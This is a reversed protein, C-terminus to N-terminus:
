LLVRVIDRDILAAQLGITKAAHEEAILFQAQSM